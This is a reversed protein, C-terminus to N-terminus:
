PSDQFCPLYKLTETLKKETHQYTHQKIKSVEGALTRISIIREEKLSFTTRLLKIM